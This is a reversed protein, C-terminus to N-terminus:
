LPFDASTEDIKNGNNEPLFDAPRRVGPFFKGDHTSKFLPLQETQNKMEENM